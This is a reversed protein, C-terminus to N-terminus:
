KAVDTGEVVVGEIVGEIGGSDMKGLAAVRVVEDIVERAEWLAVWGFVSIAADENGTHSVITSVSVKVAYVAAEEADVLEVEVTVDEDFATTSEVPRTSM